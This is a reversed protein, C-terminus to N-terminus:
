VITIVKRGSAEWWYPHQKAGAEAYGIRKYAQGKGGGVKVLVLMNCSNSEPIFDRDETMVRGPNDTLVFCWAEEVSKHEGDNERLTTCIEPTLSMEDDFFRSGEYKQGYKDFLCGWTFGRIIGVPQMHGRIVLEGGTVEGYPNNESVLTTECSIVEARVTKCISFHIGSGGENATVWSWSPGLAPKFRPQGYTPFYFWQLEHVLYRGWLGAYYNSKSLPSLAQAVASIAPLRDRNESLNRETYQCVISQWLSLQQRSEQYEDTRNALRVLAENEVSIWWATPVYGVQEYWLRWEIRYDLSGVKVPKLFARSQNHPEYDRPQFGRHCKWVTMHDTFVLLRPTLFSEQLSWGRRNLPEPGDRFPVVMVSGFQDKSVQFPHYFPGLHSICGAETPARLFGEAVGSASAASITLLANQYISMMQSLEREKDARDDQIICFADVWIYVMGMSRAVHFADTITKPLKSYPLAEKYQEYCSTLTKHKQDRGWCYSLACYQGDVGNTEWVKAWLPEGPSSIRVLRSPLRTSSGQGCTPHKDICNNMWGCAEKLVEPTGPPMM